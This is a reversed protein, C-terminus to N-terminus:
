NVRRTRSSKSQERERVWEHVGDWHNQLGTELFDHLTLVGHVIDVALLTLQIIVRILKQFKSTDGPATYLWLALAHHLLCFLFGTCLISQLNPVLFYHPNENMILFKEQTFFQVSTVAPNTPPTKATEKYCTPLSNHWLVTVPTLSARYAQEGMKQPPKLGGRVKNVVM